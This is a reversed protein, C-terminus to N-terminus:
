LAVEGFPNKESFDLFEDGEIKVQDNDAGPIITGIKYSAQIIPDGNVLTLLSGNVLRMQYLPAEETSQLLVIEDIPGIGTDIKESSYVFQECELEWVYLHGLQYFPDEHEVFKIEFMSNSAPMYILDGEAPRYPLIGLGKATVAQDWRARAVVFTGRDRIEIGFNRVFDGDGGYGNINKLYMELPVAFEFKSLVDEGFLIDEKVLKRPLYFTDFGFIKMSEIILDELVRQESTRGGPTGAQFYVNVPCM